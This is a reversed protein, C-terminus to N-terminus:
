HVGKDSLSSAGDDSGLGCITPRPAVPPLPQLVGDVWGLPVHSAPHQILAREVESRSVEGGCELPTLEVLTSQTTGVYSVSESGGLPTATDRVPTM